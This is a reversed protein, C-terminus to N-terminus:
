RRGSVSPPSARELADCFGILQRCRDVGYSSRPGSWYPAFPRPHVHLGDQGLDGEPLGLGVRNARPQPASDPKVARRRSCGRSLSGARWPRWAWRPPPQFKRGTEANRVSGTAVGPQTPALATEPPGPPLAEDLKALRSALNAAQGTVTAASSVARNRLFGARTVMFTFRVM